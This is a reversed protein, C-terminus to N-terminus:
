AHFLNMQTVNIAFTLIVFEVFIDKLKEQFLWIDWVEPGPTGYTPAPLPSHSNALPNHVSHSTSFYPEHVQLWAVPQYITLMSSMYLPAPHNYLTKYVLVLVKHMIRKHVPSWHLYDLVPSIHDLERTVLVLRAVTNQAPQLPAVTSKPLNVLLANQFDLRPTVLVTTLTACIPKDLHAM